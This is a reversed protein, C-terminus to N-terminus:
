VGASWYKFTASAPLTVQSGQITDGAGNKLSLSNGNIYLSHAYYDRIPNLTANPATTTEYVAAHAM